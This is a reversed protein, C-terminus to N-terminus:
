MTEWKYLGITRCYTVHSDPDVYCNGSDFVYYCLTSSMTTACIPIQEAKADGPVLTVATAALLPVLFLRSLSM